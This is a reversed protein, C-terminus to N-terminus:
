QPMGHTRASLSHVYNYAEACQQFSMMQGILIEPDFQRLFKMSFVSECSSVFYPLSEWDPNFHVEKSHGGSTYGYFQTAGCLQSSCTKHYPSGPITDMQEDYVAVSAPCDEVITAQKWM